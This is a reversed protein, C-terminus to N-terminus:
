SGFENFGFYSSLGTYYDKVTISRENSNYFYKINSDEFMKQLIELDTM